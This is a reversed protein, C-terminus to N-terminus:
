MRGLYKKLVTNQNKIKKGFFLKEGHRKKFFRSFKMRIIPIFPVNSFHPGFNWLFDFSWIQCNWVENWVSSGYHTESVKYMIEKDRFWFDASGKCIEQCAPKDIRYFPKEEEERTNRFNSYGTVSNILSVEDYSGYIKSPDLSRLWWFSKIM